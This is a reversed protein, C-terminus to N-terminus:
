KTGHNENSCPKSLSKYYMKGLETLKLVMRDFKNKSKWNFNPNKSTRIHMAVTIISIIHTERALWM